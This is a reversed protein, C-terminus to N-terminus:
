ELGELLKELKLICNRKHEADVSWDHMAQKYKAKLEENEAQLQQIKIRKAENAKCVQEYAWETPYDKKNEM